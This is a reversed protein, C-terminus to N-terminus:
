YREGARSLFSSGSAVRGTRDDSLTDPDDVPLKVIVSDLDSPGDWTLHVRLTKGGFGKGDGINEIRSAILQNSGAHAALAKRLWETTIVINSTPM